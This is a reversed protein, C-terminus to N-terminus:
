FRDHIENSNKCSRNPLLPTVCVKAYVEDIPRPFGDEDLIDDSLTVTRKRTIHVKKRLM